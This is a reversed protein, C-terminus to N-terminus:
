FVSAGQFFLKSFTSLMNFVLSMVKGVFTWITLAVSKGTTMYPHSFQVLFVSLGKSLLCIFGTWGFPFWGQINVPLVSASARTSQSRSAFFQSRQFSESAPFSQLCSFFPIVSSSTTPHCWRSLLCSYSYVRPTPSPFPPRAHQLGHPWLSDSMVSHSVSECKWSTLLLFILPPLESDLSYFAKLLFVSEFAMSPWILHSILIVM